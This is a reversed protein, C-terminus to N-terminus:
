YTIVLLSDHFYWRYANRFYLHVLDVNFSVDVYKYVMWSYANLPKSFWAVYHKSPCTLEDYFTHIAGIFRDAFCICQLFDLKLLSYGKGLNFTAFVLLSVWKCNKAWSSEHMKQYLVGYLAYNSEIEFQQACSIKLSFSHIM